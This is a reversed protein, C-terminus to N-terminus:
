RRIDAGRGPASIGAKEAAETLLRANERKMESLPLRVEARCLGMHALLEKIPVPNPECFLLKELGTLGDQIQRALATDGGTFSTYLKKMRKPAANSAVSIAGAAGLALFPLLLADNGCYIDLAGRCLAATRVTKELDADAEKIGRVNPIGALREYQEPTVNVGTRSPVNYVIVPKDTSECVAKFHRFLGSDTAKNYYPTVALLADAGCLAAREALRCARRTDNSGAGAIVPVRGRTQRVCFDVAQAQEEDTLVASEGTTGCVAIADVGNTLQFELTRAFAAWDIGGKYFPTVVATAIGKFVPPHKM